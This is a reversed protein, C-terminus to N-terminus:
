SQGGNLSEVLKALYIKAATYDADENGTNFEKLITGEGAYEDDELKALIQYSDEYYFVNLSKIFATNLAVEGDSDLLFKM